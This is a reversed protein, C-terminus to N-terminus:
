KKRKWLVQLIWGVQGCSGVGSNTCWRGAGIVVQHSEAWRQRNDRYDMPPVRRQKTLAQCMRVSAAHSTGTPGGPREHAPSDEKTPTEATKPEPQSPLQRREDGPNSRPSCHAKELLAGTLREFRVGPGSMRYITVLTFGGEYPQSLARVNKGRNALRCSASM